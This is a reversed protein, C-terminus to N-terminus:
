WENCMFFSSILYPIPPINTKRSVALRKMIFLVDPPGTVLSEAVLSEAPDPADPPDPLDPAEPFETAVVGM